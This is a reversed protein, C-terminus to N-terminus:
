HCYCPQLSVPRQIQLLGAEFQLNQDNLWSGTSLLARLLFCRDADIPPTAALGAAEPSFHVFPFAATRVQLANTAAALEGRTLSQKGPLLVRVAPGLSEAGGETRPTSDGQLLQAARPSAPPGSTHGSPHSQVTVSRLTVYEPQLSRYWADHLVVSLMDLEQKPVAQGRKLQQLTDVLCSLVALQLGGAPTGVQSSLEGSAGPRMRPRGGAAAAANAAAVAEDTSLRRRPDGEASSRGSSRHRQGSLVPVNGGGASTAPVRCCCCDRACQAGADAILRATTIGNSLAAQGPM